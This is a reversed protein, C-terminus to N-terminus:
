IICLKRKMWLMEVTNKVKRKVDNFTHSTATILAQPTACGLSSANKDYRVINRIGVRRSKSSWYWSVTYWFSITSTPRRKSPDMLGQLWLPPPSGWNVALEVQSHVREELRRLSWAEENCRGGEREWWCRILFPLGRKVSVEERSVM